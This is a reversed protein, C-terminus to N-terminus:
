SPPRNAYVILNASLVNEIRGGSMDLDRVLVLVM